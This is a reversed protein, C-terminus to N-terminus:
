LIETVTYGEAEIAARLRGDDLPASLRLVATGTVHSVEAAAVESMAELLSKVRAECHPCMMGKIKVTKEMQQTTRENIKKYSITREESKAFRGLRLANGVVFLSSLSMAAAGLMPSLAIGLPVFLGAAVPIAILNYFFAWFLNQRITRLTARGLRIADVADTLRSGLLLVEATDQAIDTGSGIAIGVDAVALAPADNIGDGVMAVAGERRLARLVDAKGTPLLEAMVTDIGVLSGVARATAANDGTLMVTRIGMDSLAAIADAAEPKETDAVAICGLFRGEAAFFLPTKGEDALARARDKVTSDLSAVTEIFRLSGGYLLTGERKASLGEGPLVTFDEIERPTLGRETGYAVIARGLPHESRYELDYAIRFLEAESVTDSPLCDTVSPEGRTVTGTKDLAVVRVRGLGELAAATKFLIGQRAGVGCGVMIAVPTALGLACPCSIVLVSVARTMAFGAGQGLLLWVLATIASLGLVLPVFVGSVRDALRAVPAKSAAADSVTRIMQSLTTEQGVRTARCTLVGSQNITAASVSDGVKKYAPLSEGTLSAENVASEGSLVIGDAAISEGPRVLFVDDRSLQEIPLLCEVGDRLVSVTAPSLRELAALATMTKGKSRAELLKGLTILVLIMAASDFYFDHALPAEPHLLLSLLRFLSYGFSAASGLSVLTDMTAARHLLARAGRLFFGRNLLMVALSLLMQCLGNAAPTDALLRPLPLGLMSHGMSLYMLPLLLIFSLLLRRAVDRRARDEGEKVAPSAAAEEMPSAGYGAARVAAVIEEETAEGQVRMTGTLLNVDCSSVGPCSLVAAEVRSSCAACSMGTVRFQKM